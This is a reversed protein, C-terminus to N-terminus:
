FDFIIPTLVRVAKTLEEAVEQALDHTLTEFAFTRHLRRWSATWAELEWEHGLAAMLEGARAALRAAWADNAEPTGEFHLGLEVLGRHVQPQLEFHVAPNGYHLQLTTWMVKREPRPHEGPLAAMALEEALFVFERAKLPM